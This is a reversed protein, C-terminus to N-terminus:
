LGTHTVLVAYAAVDVSPLHFLGIAVHFLYYQTKVSMQCVTICWGKPSVSTCYRRISLMDYIHMLLYNWFKFCLSVNIM